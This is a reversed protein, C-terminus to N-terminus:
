FSIHLKVQRSVTAICNQKSKCTVKAILETLPQAGLEEIKQTNLCSLYYFQAKKEAESSSNFTGNEIFPFLHLLVSIEFVDTEASGEIAMDAPCLHFM